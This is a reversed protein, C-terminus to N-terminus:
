LPNGLVFMSRKTKYNYSVQSAGTTKGGVIIQKSSLNVGLFRIRSVNVCTAFGFGGKMDLKWKKFSM